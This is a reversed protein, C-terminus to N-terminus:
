FSVTTGIMASVSNWYIRNYPITIFKYVADGNLAKFNQYKLSLNLAWNELFYWDLEAKAVQGLGEGLNLYSHALTRYTERIKTDYRAFHLEYSLHLMCDENISIGSDLGVWVTKWVNIAKVTYETGGKLEQTHLSLGFLPAIWLHSFPSRWCGIGLDIDVCHAPHLNKPDRDLGTSSFHRTNDEKFGWSYYASGRTYLRQDNLYNFKTGVQILNLDRWAIKDVMDPGNNQVLITKWRLSDKRYGATIDIDLQSGTYETPDLPPQEITFVTNLLTMMAIVAFAIKNMM